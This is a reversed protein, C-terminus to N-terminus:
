DILLNKNSGEHVVDSMSEDPNLLPEETTDAGNRQSSPEQTVSAHTVALESQSGPEQTDAETSTETLDKFMYISHCVGGCYFYPNQALQKIGLNQNLLLM